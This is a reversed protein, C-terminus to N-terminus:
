RELVENTLPAAKAQLVKEFLHSQHELYYCYERQERLNMKVPLCCITELLVGVMTMTKTEVPPKTM